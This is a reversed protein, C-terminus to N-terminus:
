LGDVGHHKMSERSFTWKMKIQLLVSHNDYTVQHLMFNEKQQQWFYFVDPFHVGYMRATWETHYFKLINFYIMASACVQLISVFPYLQSSTELFNSGLKQALVQLCDFTLKKIIVLRKNTEDEM